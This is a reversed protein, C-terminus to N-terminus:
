TAVGVAEPLSQNWVAAPLVRFSLTCCAIGFSTASHDAVVRMVEAEAEICMGCGDGGFIPPDGFLILCRLRQGITFPEEMTCFFSDVSMNRSEATVPAAAEAGFVLMPLQVNFRKSSRKSAPVPNALLDSLNYNEANNM